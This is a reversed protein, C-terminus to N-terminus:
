GLGHLASSARPAHLPSWQPAQDLLTTLLRRARDTEGARRAIMGAHFLFEPERSGLRMAEASLRSAAEIRGARYLAWSYADASSVSPSNRWAGRGYSVARSADGHDAEFLTLGADVNSGLALLRRERAGAAAYHRRAADLRGAAQEAEALDTLADPSPPQGVQGRFGRIASALEGRGADLAALGSTAGVRPDIALAERYLREAAGNRGRKAELDGLLTRVFATGESTGAGASIALRLARAAGDLDGHLERFYSIRSYAALNPKLTVMRDLAREAARYRGTEILADVLASYPFVQGPAAAKARRALELGGSFDHRALAITALGSLAGPDEPATALASDYAREARAYFRPDRTERSRQYYADGLATATAADGPDIQTARRLAEIQAATGATALPQDVSDSSPTLTPATDSPNLAALVAFLAAFVILPALLRLARPNLIDPTPM